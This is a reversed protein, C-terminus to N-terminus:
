VIQDGATQWQAARVFVALATAISGPRSSIAPATGDEDALLGARECTPRALNEMNQRAM